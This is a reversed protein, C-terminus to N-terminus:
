QIRIWATNSNTTYVGQTVTTTGSSNIDIYNLVSNGGLSTPTLPVSPTWGSVAKRCYTYSTGEKTSGWGGYFDQNSLTDGVKILLYYQQNALDITTPLTCTITGTRTGPGGIDSLTVQGIQTWGSATGDATTNIMARAYDVRAPTSKDNWVGYYIVFTRNSDNGIDEYKALKSNSDYYSNYITKSVSLNFGVGVFLNGIISPYFSVDIYKPIIYITVSSTTPTFYIDSFTDVGVYDDIDTSFIVESNSDVIAITIGFTKEDDEPTVIYSFNFNSQPSVSNAYAIVSHGIRLSTYKGPAVSITKYCLAYAEINDFEDFNIDMDDNAESYFYINFSQSSSDHPYRGPLTNALILPYNEYSSPIVPIGGSVYKVIATSYAELHMSDSSYTALGANWYNNETVTSLTTNKVDLFQIQNIEGKTPCKFMYNGTNYNYSMQRKENTIDMRTAIQNTSTGM